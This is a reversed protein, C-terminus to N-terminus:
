FILLSIYGYAGLIVVGLFSYSLWAPVSIELPTSLFNDRNRNHERDTGWLIGLLRVLEDSGFFFGLLGVGLGFYLSFQTGIVFLSVAVKGGGNMLLVIGWAFFTIVGLVGGFLLSLVRDSATVKFERKKTKIIIKEPLLYMSACQPCSNKNKKTLAKVKFGCDRCTYAM